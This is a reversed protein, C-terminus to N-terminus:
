RLGPASAAAAFREAAAANSARAPCARSSTAVTARGRPPTGAARMESPWDIGEARVSRSRSWDKWATGVEAVSRSATPWWATALYKKRLETVALSSSGRSTLAKKQTTEDGLVPILM